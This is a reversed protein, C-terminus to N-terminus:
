SKAGEEQGEHQPRLPDRSASAPAIAVHQFTVHLDGLRVLLGILQAQDLYPAVLDFGDASEEIWGGLAQATHQGLRGTVGIRLLMAEM